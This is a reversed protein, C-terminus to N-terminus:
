CLWLLSMCMRMCMHMCMCMYMHMHALEGPAVLIAPPLASPQLGSVARPTAPQRAHAVAPQLPNCRAEFIKEVSGPEQLVSLLRKEM